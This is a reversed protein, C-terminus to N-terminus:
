LASFTGSIAVALCAPGRIPGTLGRCWIRGYGLRAADGALRAEEEYPLGVADLGVDVQM